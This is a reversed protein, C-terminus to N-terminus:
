RPLHVCALAVRLLQIVHFFNALSICDPILRNASLVDRVNSRCCQVAACLQLYQILSVASQTSYQESPRRRTRLHKLEFLVWLLSTIIMARVGCTSLLALCTCACDTRVVGDLKRDCRGSTVVTLVLEYRQVTEKTTM